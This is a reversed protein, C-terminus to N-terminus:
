RECRFFKVQPGYIPPCYRLTHIFEGACGWKSCIVPALSSGDVVIGSHNPDGEDSFYIVIDGALLSKIDVEKYGDDALIREIGSRKEIRTRHNAFTLGHCNYRPSVDTRKTALPYSKGITKSWNLHFASLTDGQHNDIGQGLSTELRIM